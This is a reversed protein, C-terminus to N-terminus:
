PTVFGGGFWLCTRKTYHDGEPDLYGGYEYPDFSADPERWCTALRGVPNELMWPCGLSELIERCREVLTLGEILPLLGKEKWWRAGSAALHTCPPFAFAIAVPPFGYRHANFERVDQGIGRINPAIQDFEGHRTDVCYCAYGAEAWPRVMNGTFDCLSLVCGKSV